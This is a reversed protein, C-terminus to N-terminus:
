IFGAGSCYRPYKKWPYRMITVQYRGSRMPQGCCWCCGRMEVIQDDSWNKAVIKELNEPFVQVDDDTKMAHNGCLSATYVIMLTKVTTLDESEDFDSCIM